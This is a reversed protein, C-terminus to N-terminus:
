PPSRLDLHPLIDILLSRSGRRWRGVIGRIKSPLGKGPPIYIADLIKIARMANCQDYLHNIQRPHRRLRPSGVLEESLARYYNGPENLDAYEAIMKRVNEITSQMGLGAGEIM